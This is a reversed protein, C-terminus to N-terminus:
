EMVGITWMRIPHGGKVGARERGCVGRIHGEGDPEDHLALYSRRRSELTREQGAGDRM